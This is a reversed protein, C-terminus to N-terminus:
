KVWNTSRFNIVEHANCSDFSKRLEKDDIYSGMLLCEGTNYMGRHKESGVFIVYDIDRYGDMICLTDPDAHKVLTCPNGRNQGNCVNNYAM